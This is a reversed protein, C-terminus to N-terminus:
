AHAYASQLGFSIIIANNVEYMKEEDIGTVFDGLLNKDIVRIQELLAISDKKLRYNEAEFMVHTPINKKNKNSTLPAVLTTPSYKNGIDNQIVIVPRYGGQESGFYNTLDAYYINGKKIEKNRSMLNGRIM